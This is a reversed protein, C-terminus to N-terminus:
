KEREAELIAMREAIEKPEARWYKAVFDSQHTAEVALEIAREGFEMLTPEEKGYLPCSKSHNIGPLDGDCKPYGCCHPFSNWITEAIERFPKKASDTM